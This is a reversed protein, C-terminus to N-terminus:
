STTSTTVKTGDCYTVTGDLADNKLVTSLASTAGGQTCVSTSSSYEIHFVPKGGGVFSDYLECENFQVCSENVAFDVHDTVQPLIEGANKLGIALGASKAAASLAQTYTVADAQTLPTSFGGGNQNNYADMNDPDIGDCGKSAALAIRAQMITLVAPDRVDLWKEDPWAPLAAGLTTAALQTSDPRGPEYTGASLYCLVKKGTAKLAAITAAPTDFLDLDWVDADM